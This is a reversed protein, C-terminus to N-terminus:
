SATIQELLLTQHPPAFRAIIEEMKICKARTWGHNIQNADGGIRQRVKLLIWQKKTAPADSGAEKV